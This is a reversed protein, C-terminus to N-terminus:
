VKRETAPLLATRAHRTTSGTSDWKVLYVDGVHHAALIRGEGSIVEPWAYTVRKGVRYYKFDQRKRVMQEM